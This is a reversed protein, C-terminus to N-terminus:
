VKQGERKHSVFSPFVAIIPASWGNTNMNKNESGFQAIIRALLRKGKRDGNKVERGGARLRGGEGDEIVEQSTRAASHRPRYVRM